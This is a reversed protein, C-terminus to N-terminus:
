KSHTTGRTDMWRVLLLIMKQATFSASQPIACIQITKGTRSRVTAPVLRHARERLLADPLHLRLLEAGFLHRLHTQSKALARAMLSVRPHSGRAQLAPWAAPHPQGRQRPIMLVLLVSLMGTIM